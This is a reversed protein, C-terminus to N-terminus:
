LFYRLGIYASVAGFPLGLISLRVRRQLRGLAAQDNRRRYRKIVMAACYLNLSLAFLATGIKILHLTSLPWVRVALGAGSALVGAILPLEILVDIWYHTAAAAEGALVVEIVTEALVVGAWGCLLILHVLRLWDM